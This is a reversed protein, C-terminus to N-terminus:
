TRHSSNLRTSKRDGFGMDGTCLVIVRDHLGLKQLVREADATLAELEAASKEPACIKVLEVKDFQDDGDTDRVRYVGHPRSGENVAVYLGDDLRNLSIADPSTDFALRFREETERM